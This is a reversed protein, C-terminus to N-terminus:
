LRRPFHQFELYSHNNTVNPSIMMLRATPWGVCVAYAYAYTMPKGLLINCLAVSMVNTNTNDSRERRRAGVARGEAARLLADERALGTRRHAPRPAARQRVARLEEARGLEGGGGAGLLDRVRPLGVAVAPPGFPRAMEVQVVRRSASAAAARRRHQVYDLRLYNHHHLYIM